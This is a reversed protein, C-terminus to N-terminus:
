VDGFEDALDPLAVLHLEPLLHDNSLRRPRRGHKRSFHLEHDKVGAPSHGVADLSLLKQRTQSARRIRTEVEEVLEKATTAAATARTNEFGILQLNIVVTMLDVRVRDVPVGSVDPLVTECLRRTGIIRQAEHFEAEGILVVDVHM